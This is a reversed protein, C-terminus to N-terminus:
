QLSTLCVSAGLAAIPYAAGGRYTQQEEEEEEEEVSFSEAQQIM